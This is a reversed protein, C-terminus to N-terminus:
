SQRNVIYDAFLKLLPEDNELFDLAESALRHHEALRERAGELGLLHRIRQSIVVLNM